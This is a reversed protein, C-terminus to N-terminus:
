PSTTVSVIIKGSKDKPLLMLAELTTPLLISTSIIYAQPNNIITPIHNLHSVDLGVYSIKSLLYLTTQFYTVNMLLTYIHKQITTNKTKSM